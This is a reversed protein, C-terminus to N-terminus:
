NFTTRSFYTKQHWNFCLISGFDVQRWYDFKSCTMCVHSELSRSYTQDEIYEWEMEPKHNSESLKPSTIIKNIM